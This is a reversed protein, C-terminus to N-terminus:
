QSFAGGGGRLFYVKGYNWALLSVKFAKVLKPCHLNQEPEWSLDAYNRWKVQYEKGRGTNRENMIAEVEYEAHCACVTLNAGVIFRALLHM